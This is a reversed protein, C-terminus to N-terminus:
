SDYAMGPLFPSYCLSVVMGPLLSLGAMIGTNMYGWFTRKIPWFEFLLEWVHTTHIYVYICVTRGNKRGRPPSSGSGLVTVARSVVGRGAGPFM